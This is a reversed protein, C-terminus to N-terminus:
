PGKPPWVAPSDVAQTRRLPYPTCNSPSVRGSFLGHPRQVSRKAVLFGAGLAPLVPAQANGAAM